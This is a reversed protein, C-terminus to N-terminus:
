PAIGDDTNGYAERIADLQRARISKIRRNGSGRGHNSAAVKAGGSTAAAKPIAVWQGDSLDIVVTLPKKMPAGLDFQQAFAIEAQTMPREYRYHGQTLRIVSREPHEHDLRVAVRRGVHISAATGILCRWPNGQDCVSRLDQFEKEHPDITFELAELPAPFPRM